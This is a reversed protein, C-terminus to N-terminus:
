EPRHIPCIFHRVPLRIRNRKGIYGRAVRITAAELGVESNGPMSMEAVM